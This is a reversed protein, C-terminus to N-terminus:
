EEDADAKRGRKPPMQVDKFAAPMIRASKRIARYVPDTKELEKPVARGKGNDVIQWVQKIGATITQDASKKGIRMLVQFMTSAPLRHGGKTDQRKKIEADFRKEANTKYTVASLRAAIGMLTRPDYAGLDAKKKDDADRDFRGQFRTAKMDIGVLGDKETKLTVLM